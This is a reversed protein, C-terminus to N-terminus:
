KLYETCEIFMSEVFDCCDCESIEGDFEYIMGSSDDYIFTKKMGISFM